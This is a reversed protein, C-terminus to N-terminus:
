LIKKSKILFKKFLFLEKREFNFLLISLIKSKFLFKDLLWRM